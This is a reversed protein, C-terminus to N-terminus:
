GTGPRDGTVVFAAGPIRWGDSGRYPEIADLVAGRAQAQLEEDAAAYAPGLPGLELLVPVQEAGRDRDLSFHGAVPQVEVAEFGAGALVSRVHGPDSLSFPGPEGPAPLTLDAGLIGVAAMTPVFMWPNEELPAWVSCSFRGGPKMSALVNAFSTVPDVFFMVGFRSYAADFGEGAAGDALDHVVVGVNTLAADEVRRRAASAMADSIDLALVEGSPGVRRALAVATTGPGCGIDLVREGGILGLADMAPVGYTDSFRDIREAQREWAGARQEWFNREEDGTASM